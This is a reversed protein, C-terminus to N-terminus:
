AVHRGPKEFLQEALTNQVSRLHSATHRLTRGFQKKVIHL